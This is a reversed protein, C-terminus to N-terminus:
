ENFTAPVVEGAGNAPECVYIEPRLITAKEYGEAVLSKFEEVQGAPLLSVTCGGFGGGTMRSGLVGDVGRALDVMTDLESCSVEYDDRLSRHSEDMLEGFGALDGRKLAEGAALVRGNESIVHRCRRYVVDALDSGLHALQELTVDRLASVNPLSAILHKVGAECQARRENYAGSAHEHKVM